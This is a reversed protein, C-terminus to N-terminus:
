KAKTFPCCAKKKAECGPTAKKSEAEICAAQKAWCEQITKVNEPKDSTITVIVGKDTNTVEVTASCIEKCDQLNAKVPAKCAKADEAHVAMTFTVALIGCIIGLTLQKKM